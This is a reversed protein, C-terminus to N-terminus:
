SSSSSRVMRFCEMLQEYEVQCAGQELVGENQKQIVCQAYAKMLDPCTSKMKTFTSTTQNPQWTNTTPTDSNNNTSFNRTTIDTATSISSSAKGTIPPTLLRGATNNCKVNKELIRDNEDNSNIGVGNDATQLTRTSTSTGLFFSAVVTFSSAAAAITATVAAKTAKNSFSSYKILSM